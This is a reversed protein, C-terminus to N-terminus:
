RAGRNRCLLFPSLCFALPGMQIPGRPCCSFLSVFCRIGRNLICLAPDCRHVTCIVQLAPLFWYLRQCPSETGM